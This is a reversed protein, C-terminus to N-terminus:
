QQEQQTALLGGGALPPLLGYKRLIQVLSDDFVAYNSTQNESEWKALDAKAQDRMAQSVNPDNMIKRNISVQGPVVRSGQDLYRIGPIGAERLAVSFGEQGVGERSAGMGYEMGGTRKSLVDQSPEQGLTRRAAIVQQLVDPQAALARDWDLFSKPDANIDVEYIKAKAAKVRELAAMAEDFTYGGGKALQGLIDMDSRDARLMRHIQLEGPNLDYKGLNKATFELDYQGGKGSVAPSEAAYIGHGYSQAGQGTGIKGLDFRDFDHPSAHWARIGGFEDAMLAPLAAAAERAAYRAAERYAGAAPFLSSQLGGTAFNATDGLAEIGPAVPLKSRYIDGDAQRMGLANMGGLQAREVLGPIATGIDGLKTMLSQLATGTYPDNVPTRDLSLPITDAGVNYEQPPGQQPQDGFLNRYLDFINAM